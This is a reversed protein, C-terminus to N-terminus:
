NPGIQFVFRVCVISFINTIKRVFFINKQKRTSNATHIPPRSGFRTTHTTHSVLDRFRLDCLENNNHEGRNTSLRLVLVSLWVLFMRNWFFPSSMSILCFCISFRFQVYLDNRYQHYQLIVPTWFLFWHAPPRNRQGKM